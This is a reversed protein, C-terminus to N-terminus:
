RPFITAFTVDRLTTRTFSSALGDDIKQAISGLSAQEFPERTVITGTVDVEPRNVLDDLAICLDDAKPGVATM